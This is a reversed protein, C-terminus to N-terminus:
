EMRGNYTSGLYAGWSIRSPVPIGLARRELFWADDAFGTNILELRGDGDVAAEPVLCLTLQM